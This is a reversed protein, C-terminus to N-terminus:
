HVKDLKEVRNEVRNIAHNFSAQETRIIAPQGAQKDMGGLLADMKEELKKVDKKDAKQELDEKTVVYNALYQAIKEFSDNVLLILDSIHGYKLITEVVTNLSLPERAEERIDWFLDGHKRIYAKSGESPM